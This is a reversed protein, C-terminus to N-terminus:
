RAADWWTRAAAAGPQVATTWDGPHGVARACSLDRLLDLFAADDAVRESRDEGREIYHIIWNGSSVEFEATIVPDNELLLFSTTSPNPSFDPTLLSVDKM